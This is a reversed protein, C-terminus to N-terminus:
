KKAELAIAIRELQMNIKKLEDVQDQAAKAKTREPDLTPSNTCSTFIYLWFATGAIVIFLKKM